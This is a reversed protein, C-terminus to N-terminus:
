DLLFAYSRPFATKQWGQSEWAALFHSGITLQTELNVFHLENLFHKRMRQPWLVRKHGRKKLCRFALTIM